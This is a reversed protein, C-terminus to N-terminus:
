ARLLVSRHSDCDKGYPLALTIMIERIKYVMGLVPDGSSHLTAVYLSGSLWPPPNLQRHTQRLRHILRVCPRSVQILELSTPQPSSLLWKVNNNRVGEGEAM